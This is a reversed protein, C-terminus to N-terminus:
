RPLDSWILARLEYARVRPTKQRMGTVVLKLSGAGIEDIDRPNPESEVACYQWGVVLPERHM